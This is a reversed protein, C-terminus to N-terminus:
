ASFKDLGKFASVPDVEDPVVYFLDPQNIFPMLGLLSKADLMEHKGHIYTDYAFRTAFRNIAQVDSVSRLKIAKVM